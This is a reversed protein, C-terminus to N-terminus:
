GQGSTDNHDPPWGTPPGGPPPGLPPSPTGMMDSEPTKKRRFLWRFLGGIAAFLVIFGKKFVLALKALLGLKSAVAVGAGGLVLGRLGIGSSHDSSVHDAYTSGLKFHTAGLIAVAEKKASEIQDPEAILDISAYGNRGLIRTFFNVVKGGTYHAALGWVLHHPGQEYRPRETWSDIILEPQGLARRTKNQEATGQRYSELLEDADLDNADSDDIYGSGEYDIFVRWDSDPNFVMAVVGEAPEGQKRLLKQAEIRELLVMGAPLDIATNNGLDVTKPGLIHPPMPEANAPENDAADPAAPDPKEATGPAAAPQAKAPEAKKGPERKAPKDAGAIATTGLIVALFTAERLGM